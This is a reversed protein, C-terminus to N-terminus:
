TGLFILNEKVSCQYSDMEKMISDILEVKNRYLHILHCSWRGMETWIDILAYDFKEIILKVKGDSLLTLSLDAYWLNVTSITKSEEVYM